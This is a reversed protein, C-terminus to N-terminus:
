EGSVNVIPSSASPRVAVTSRCKAPKVQAGAAVLREMLNGESPANANKRCYDQRFRGPSTGTSKRFAGSFHSQSAFGLAAAVEVLLQGKSILEKARVVRHNMIYKHPTTTFTNSFIRFFQRPSLQVLNALDFLTVQCDLNAHIYEEVLRGEAASFQRLPRTEPRKVSFRGAVYAALALSLSQGYLAGSPCGQAVESAMSKLLAAIHADEVVIQPTLSGSAAPGRNGLLAEVRAPDLEVCIAEFDSGAVSFRTEDFGSPVVCVSGAQAVFDQDGRAMRVRFSLQGKTFLAVHARHWGWWADHRVGHATELLFGSWPTSASTLLPEITVPVIQGGVIGTIQERARGSAEM